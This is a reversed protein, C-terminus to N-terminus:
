QAHVNLLGALAEASCAGAFRVIQVEVDDAEPTPTWTDTASSRGAVDEGTDRRVRAWAPPGFRYRGHQGEAADLAGLAAKAVHQAHEFLARAEPRIKAYRDPLAELSGVLDEFGALTEKALRGAKRLTEVLDEAGALTEKFRRIAEEAVAREAADPADPAEVVDPASM